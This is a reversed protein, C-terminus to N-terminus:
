ELDKLPMARLNLIETESLKAAKHLTNVENKLKMLLGLCAVVGLLAGLALALVLTLSLPAQWMGFYYNLSVNQANLVAFSLGLLLVLIYFILRVIRMM